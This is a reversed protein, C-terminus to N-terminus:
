NLSKIKNIFKLFNVEARSLDRGSRLIAESFLKVSDTQKSIPDCRPQRKNLRSLSKTSSPTTMALM